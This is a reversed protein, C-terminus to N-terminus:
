DPRWARLMMTVCARIYGTMDDDEASEIGLQQRYFFHGQVVALFQTAAIYSDGCAIRGADAQAQLFDALIRTSREVVNEYFMRPLEPRRAGEALMVGHLADVEPDSIMRMFDRGLQFLIDELRGKSAAAIQVAAFVQDCGASIAAVFLAEKSQFHSYITVKSVGAEAAVADLSVREYAEQTFLRKAADLIADRKAASKPRGQRLAAPDDTM